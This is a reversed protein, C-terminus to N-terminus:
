IYICVYIYIHIYWQKVCVHQILKLQLDQVYPASIRRFVHLHRGRPLWFSILAFSVYHQAVAVEGPVDTFLWLRASFVRDCLQGWKLVGPKTLTRKISPTWSSHRQDLNRLTLRLGQQDPLLVVAWADEDLVVKASGFNPDAQTGPTWITEDHKM